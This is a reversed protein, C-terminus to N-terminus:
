ISHFICVGFAVRVIGVYVLRYVFFLHFVHVYGCSYKNMHSYLLTEKEHVNSIIQKNIKIQKNTTTPIKKRSRSQLLMIADDIFALASRFSFFFIILVYFLLCLLSTDLAWSIPCFFCKKGNRVHFKFQHIHLYVFVYAKFEFEIPQAKPFRTRSHCNQQQNKKLNKHTM